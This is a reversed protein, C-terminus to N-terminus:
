CSHYQYEINNKELFSSFQDLGDSFGFSNQMKQVFEYRNGVCLLTMMKKLEIGSIIREYEDDGYFSDCAPGMDYQCMSVEGNEIELFIARSNGNPYADQYITKSVNTKM